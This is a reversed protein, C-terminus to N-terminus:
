KPAVPLCGNDLWEKMNSALGRISSHDLACHVGVRDSSFKESHRDVLKRAGEQAKEDFQHRQGLYLVYRSGQYTYPVDPNGWHVHKDWGVGKHIKGETDLYWNALHRGENDEVLNRIWGEPTDSAMPMLDQIDGFVLIASHM